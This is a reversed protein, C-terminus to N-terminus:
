PSLYKMAAMAYVKAALPLQNVEVYEDATHAKEPNGPGFIISPIGAHILHSADTAYPISGIQPRRGTLEEVSAAVCDVIPLNQDVLAPPIVTIAAVEAKLDRDEKMLESILEEFERRVEEATEGIITRRDVQIICQDPVMNLASGGKIVGVNFSPAGLVPHRKGEYIEPLVEEMKLMIKAAKMVANVGKGPMSGHASKGYVTITVPTIGRAGIVVNLNTPEGVIACDAKLGDRILKLTGASGTEEGSVATFMLTGKLKVKAANLAVIAAVMSALGGKMDCAGRGFLRGDKVLVRQGRSPPVTDLHGNFVLVPSGSGLSAILNAGFRLDDIRSKVGHDILLEGIKSAVRYEGGKIGSYSEIEVLERALGAVDFSDIFGLVDAVSM